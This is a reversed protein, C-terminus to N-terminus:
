GGTYEFLAGIENSVLLKLGPVQEIQQLSKRNITKGSWRNKTEVYIFRIQYDRLFAEKEQLTSDHFFQNIRQCKQEYDPTLFFHGCYLKGPYNPALWLDDTLIPEKSKDVILLDNKQARNQLINIIEQHNKHIFSHYKSANFSSNNLQWKLVRLPTVGLLAITILIGVWNVRSFRQFYITGAVIYVPIQLTTFGRDPYPYFPASLTILSCGFIWGLLFIEDFGAKRWYRNFGWGILGWALPYAILFSMLLIDPSRWTPLALGSNKYLLVQWIIILTTVVSCVVLTILASRGMQKKCWGLFVISAAIAILTVGEYIHLFTNLSFLFVTLGLRWPDFNRLTFYLAFVSATALLWFLLYHADFLTIVIYAGRYSEWLMANQAGEILTRGILFNQKLVEFKSLIGLHSGLGGGLMLCGFVWWTQYNSKMFHHVLFFLLITFAFNFMSGAYAIIWEPTLGTLTSMKGIFYYYFVPLHPKNPESTFTNDVLFGTEQSKRTWVRYQM